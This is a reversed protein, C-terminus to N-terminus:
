SWGGLTDGCILWKRSFNNESAECRLWLNVRELEKEKEELERELVANKVHLDEIIKAFEVSVAAATKEAAIESTKELLNDLRSVSILDENVAGLGRVDDM